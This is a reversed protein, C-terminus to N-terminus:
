SIQGREEQTRYKNIKALLEAEQKEGAKGATNKKM